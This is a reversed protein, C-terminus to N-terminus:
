FGFEECSSAAQIQSSLSDYASKQDATAETSNSSNTCAHTGIQITGANLLATTCENQATDTCGLSRIKQCTSSTISGCLSGLTKATAAPTGSSACAGAQMDSVTQVLYSEISALADCTEKPNIIMRIDHDIKDVQEATAKCDTAFTQQCLERNDSKCQSASTVCSLAGARACYADTLRTCLAMKTTGSNGSDQECGWFASVALVAVIVAPNVNRGM